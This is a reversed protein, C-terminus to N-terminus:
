ICSDDTIILCCNARLGDYTVLIYVGSVAFYDRVSSNEYLKLDYRRIRFPM